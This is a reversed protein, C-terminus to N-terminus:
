IDNIDNIDDIDEYVEVEGFYYTIAILDKVSIDMAFRGSLEAKINTFSDKSVFTIKDYVVDQAAMVDLVARCDTAFNEVNGKPLFIIEASVSDSDTIDSVKSYNEGDNGYLIVQINIEKINIGSPIKKAIDNRILNGLLENVIGSKVYLEGQGIALDTKAFSIILAAISLLLALASIVVQYNKSFWNKESKPSKGSKEPFGREEDKYENYEDFLDRVNIKVAQETEKQGTETEVVENLKLEDM